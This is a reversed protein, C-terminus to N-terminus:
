TQEENLLAEERIDDRAEVVGNILFHLTAVNYSKFVYNIIHVDHADLQRVILSKSIVHNM